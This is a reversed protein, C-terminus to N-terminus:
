KPREPRVTGRSRRALAKPDAGTDTHM